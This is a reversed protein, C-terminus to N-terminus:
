PRSKESDDTNPQRNLLEIWTAIARFYPSNRPNMLSQRIPKFEEQEKIQRPLRSLAYALKPLHLYYTVDQEQTPNHKQAEQIKQERLQATILLNRIFSQPYAVKNEHPALLKNVFPLVGILDPMAEQKLYSSSQEDLSQGLWEQWKLVQGFLSLSDRGNDKAADEADGAAQAAQYLPFKQGEISIGGSLTIEPHHGTFARFAQYVDFAFETV